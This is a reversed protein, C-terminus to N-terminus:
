IREKIEFGCQYGIAFWFWKTDHMERKIAGMAAFIPLALIRNTVIKAIKDSTTLRGKRKRQHMDEGDYKSTLQM